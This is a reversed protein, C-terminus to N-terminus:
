GPELSGRQGDATVRGVTVCVRGVAGATVRGGGGGVGRVGTSRHKGPDCSGDHELRSGAVYKGGSAGFHKGPERSGLQGVAGVVIAGGLHKGPEFSGLHGGGGGLHKGPESSGLQGVTTVVGAAGRQKGPERSGLQGVGAECIVVM